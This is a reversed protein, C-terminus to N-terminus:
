PAAAPGGLAASGPPCTDNCFMASCVDRAYTRAWGVYYDPGPWLPARFFEPDGHEHIWTWYYYQVGWAGLQDITDDRSGCTHPYGEAHRAEHVFLAVRNAPGGGSSPDIWLRTSTESTPQVNIVRPPDCCFSFPIDDRVRIGDIASVLWDYLTGATWPLPADFPQQQM